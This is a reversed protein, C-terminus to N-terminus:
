HYWMSFIVADKEDVFGVCLHSLFFSGKTHKDIWRLLDGTVYMDTDKMKPRDYIFCDLKKGIVRRKSTRAIVDLINNSKAM